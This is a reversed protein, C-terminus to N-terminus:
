IVCIHFKLCSPNPYLWFPSFTEQMAPILQPTRSFSFHNFQVQIFIQQVTNGKIYVHLIQHQNFLEPQSSLELSLSQNSLYNRMPEAKNGGPAITGSGTTNSQSFFVHLDGQFYHRM